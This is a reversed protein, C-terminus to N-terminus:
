HNEVKNLQLMLLEKFDPVNDDKCSLHCFLLNLDGSVSNGKLWYKEHQYNATLPPLKDLFPNKCTAELFARCHLGGPDSIGACCVPGAVPHAEASSLSIGSWPLM